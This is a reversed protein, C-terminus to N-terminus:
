GDDERVVVMRGGAREERFVKRGLRRRDALVAPQLGLLHMHRLLHQPAVDGLQAVRELRDVRLSERRPHNVRALDEHGAAVSDADVAAPDEVDDGIVASLVQVM